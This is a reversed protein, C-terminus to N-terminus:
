VRKKRLFIIRILISLVIIGISISGAIIGINKTYQGNFIIEPAEQFEDSIATWESETYETIAHADSILLAFINGSAYATDEYTTGLITEGKGYIKFAVTFGLDENKYYTELIKIEVTTLESHDALLKNELNTEVTELQKKIIPVGHQGYAYVLGSGILGLTAIFIVIGLIIKFFTKM